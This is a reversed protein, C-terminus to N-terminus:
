LTILRSLVRVRSTLYYRRSYPCRLAVSSRFVDSPVEHVRGCRPCLVLLYELRFGSVM